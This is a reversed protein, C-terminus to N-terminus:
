WVGGNVGAERGSCTASIVIVVIVIVLLLRLLQHLPSPIRLPLVSLKTQLDVVGVHV